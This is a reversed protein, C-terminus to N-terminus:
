LAQVRGLDPKEVWEGFEDALQQAVSTAANWAIVRAALDNAYRTFGTRNPLREVLRPGPSARHLHRRVSHRWKPAVASDTCFSRRRSRM